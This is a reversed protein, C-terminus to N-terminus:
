RQLLARSQQIRLSHRDDGPKDQCMQIRGGLYDDTGIGFYMKWVVGCLKSRTAM